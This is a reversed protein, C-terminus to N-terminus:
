ETVLKSRYHKCAKYGKRVYLEKTHADEQALKSLCYRYSHSESTSFIEPPVLEGIYICNCCKRPKKM